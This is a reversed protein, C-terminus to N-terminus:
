FFLFTIAGISPVIFAAIIFIGAFLIHLYKNLELPTIELRHNHYNQYTNM